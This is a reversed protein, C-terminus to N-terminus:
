TRGGHYCLQKLDEKANQWDEKLLVFIISTHYAGNKQVADARQGEQVFGLRRHYAISAHNCDLVEGFIKRVHLQEFIYELALCGMILGTGRPLDREGLYFGWSCSENQRDIHGANVAGVPKGNLEFILFVPPQVQMIHAFWAAHEEQTIIHDSFMHARVHESNRWFLIRNKDSARVARLRCEERGPM